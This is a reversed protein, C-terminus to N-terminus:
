RVNIPIWTANNTEDVEAIVNRPDVIAGIFKNGATLSPLTVTYKVTYVNTNRHLTPNFTAIVTDAITIWNNDSVVIDVQPQQSTAGNNEYTFEVKLTQGSSVNFRAAGGEISAGTLPRDSTDYLQVRMHESYEADPATGDEDFMWHSVSVDEGALSSLGYLAVAGTSADEGVYADATSQNVHVHTYATGMVNYVDAEHALGMAHGLEHVMTAAMLRSATGYGELTTYSTPNFAWRKNDNLIIDAEILFGAPDYIPYTAGPFGLEPAIWIENQGNGRSVVTDHFLLDFRFLSPNLDWAEKAAVVARLEQSADPFSMDALRMTASPPIWRGNVVYARSPMVAVGWLAVLCISKVLPKM